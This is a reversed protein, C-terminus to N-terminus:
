EIWFASKYGDWLDIYIKSGLYKKLWKGLAIMHSSRDGHFVLSGKPIRM